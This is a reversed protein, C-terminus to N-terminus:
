FFYNYNNKLKTKCNYARGSIWHICFHHYGLLCLYINSSAVLTKDLSWNEKACLVYKSSFIYGIALLEHSWNGGFGPQLIPLDHCFWNNIWCLSNQFLTQVLESQICAVIATQLHLGQKYIWQQPVEPFVM